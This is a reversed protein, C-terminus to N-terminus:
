NRSHLFEKMNLAMVIISTLNLVLSNTSGCLPLRPQCFGVNGM